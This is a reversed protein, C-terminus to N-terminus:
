PIKEELIDDDNSRPTQSSMSNKLSTLCNADNYDEVKDKGEDDFMRSQNFNVTLELKQSKDEQM